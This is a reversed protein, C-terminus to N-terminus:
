SLRVYLPVRLLFIIVWRHVSSNGSHGIYVESCVAVAEHIQCSMCSWYLRTLSIGPNTNKHQISLCFFNPTQVEVWLNRASYSAYITSLKSKKWSCSYITGSITTHMFLLMFKEWIICRHISSFQPNPKLFKM